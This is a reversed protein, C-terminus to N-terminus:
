KLLLTDRWYSWLNRGRYNNTVNFVHSREIRYISEKLPLSSNSRKTLKKIKKQFSKGNEM